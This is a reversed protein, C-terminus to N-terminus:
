TFNLYFSRLGDPRSTTEYLGLMSANVLDIM